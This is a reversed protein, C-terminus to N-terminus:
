SKDRYDSPAIGSQKKFFRGFTQLDEFGLEYAIEKISWVSNELLIRAEMMKRDQIFQLPTKSSFKAFYNSLTKPSKHLMSAYEAVTHHTKFHTEVLFNYERILDVQGNELNLYSSQAKYIRTCLILLRKLLMRLMELQLTDETKLEHLFLSYLHEFVELEAEPLQIVPRRSAGFFLIGKCGVESDHDIICYFPRNFQVLRAGHLAVVEIADFETLFVIQNKDFTVPTGGIVLQNHDHTFWILTLGSPGIVKLDKLSQATLAEVRLFPDKSESHHVSM